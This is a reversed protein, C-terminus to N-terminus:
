PVRGVMGGHPGVGILRADVLGQRNVLVWLRDQWGEGMLLLSLPVLQVGGALSPGPPRLEIMM